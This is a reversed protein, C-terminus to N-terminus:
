ASSIGDTRKLGARWHDLGLGRRSYAWAVEYVDGTLLDTVTDLRGVVHQLNTHLVADVAQQDGGSTQVDSATVPGITAPIATYIVAPTEPEWKDATGVRREVTVTTTTIPLTM